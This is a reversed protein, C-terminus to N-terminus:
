PLVATKTDNVVIYLAFLPAAEEPVFPVQEFTLQWPPLVVGAQDVPVILTFVCHM